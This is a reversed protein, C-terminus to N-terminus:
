QTVNLTGVMGPHITCHYHIVGPTTASFAASTAGPATAGADFGSSASGAGYGGPDGAAGGDADQVIHHTVGDRNQWVVM